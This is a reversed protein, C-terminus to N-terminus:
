EGSALRASDRLDIEGAGLDHSPDENASTDVIFPTTEQPRLSPDVSLLLATQGSVLAASFSTGSWTAYTGGIFTSYIDIGPAALSVSPGYNSFDAKFRENDTAAVSIVGAYAAPYQPQTTNRNGASAVVTVGATLAYNVADELVRSSSTVGLSLNVVQAGQQVAYVIGQAVNFVDGVGDSDLVRVPLVQADPHVLIIIGAIHTGHGAGEDIEGDQDDDIGNAEDNAVADRDVFDYGSSSIHGALGPHDLEVGTDVVAVLIPLGTSYPWADPGKVHEFGVQARYETQTPTGDIFAHIIHDTEPAQGLTNPLAQLVRRDRIVQLLTRRVDSGPPVTARYWGLSELRGTVTLHHSAAIAEIPTSRSPRLL